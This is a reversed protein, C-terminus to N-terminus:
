ASGRNGEPGPSGSVSLTRVAAAQQEATRPESPVREDRLAAVLSALLGLAAGAGLWAGLLRTPAAEGGAGTLDPAAVLRGVALVVAALAVLVGLSTVALPLAPTQQTLTLVLAAVAIAGAGLLVLDVVAFSEWGSVGEGPSCGSPSDPACYWPLFLSLVLVVGLAGSLWEGIRARRLDM